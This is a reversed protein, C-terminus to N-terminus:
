EKDKFYKEMLEKELKDPTKEKKKFDEVFKEAESKNVIYDANKGKYAIKRLKVHKDDLIQYPQSDDFKSRLEAEKIQNVRALERKLTFEVAEKGDEDLQRYKKIFLTEEITITKDKSIPTQKDTLGLLYDLSVNFFSALYRINDMSASSKNNEWKSVMSKNFNLNYKENLLEVMTDITMKNDIRLKKLIKGFDYM